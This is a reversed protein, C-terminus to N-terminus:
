DTPPQSAGIVLRDDQREVELGHLAAVARAFGENDGARYVGSVRLSALRLDPELVIQRRSYRNMEAVAETLSVDDLAVQQRTWATATDVPARDLHPATKAGGLELRQGPQLVVPSPLATKSKQTSVEVQGELLTVALADTASALRRVTFVTGLARVQHGGARVVFPRDRDKAVEFLAEGQVVEIERQANDMHVHLKTATNLSLRSGDALMVQRYEGIDTTYADGAPWLFTGAVLVGAVAAAAWRWTNRSHRSGTMFANALTLRPVAQWVDTCREFARRHEDAAGLWARFEQEMAPSRSPGHLRAVWVAAEAAAPRNVPPRRRGTDIPHVNTGV